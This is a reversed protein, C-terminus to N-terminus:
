RPQYPMYGYQYGQQQPAFRGSPSNVRPVQAGAGAGVGAGLGGARAEALMQALVKGKMDELIPAVIGPMKAHIWDEIDKLIAAKWAAMKADFEPGLALKQPAQPQPQPQPQTTPQAPQSRLSAVEARLASLEGGVAALQSRLADLEAKMSALEGGPAVPAAEPKAAGPAPTGELSAAADGPPLAARRAAALEYRGVAHSLDYRQEDVDAQLREYREDMASEVAEVRQLVEALLARLRIQPRGAGKVDGADAEPEPKTDETKTIAQAPAQAQAEPPPPAPASSAAGASAAPAAASVAAPLSAKVIDQIQELTPANLRILARIHEDSLGQPANKRVVARVQEENLGPASALVIERVRDETPASKAVLARVQAENLGSASARAIERVREESLAEKRVLARIDEESAPAAAPASAKVFAKIEDETLGPGSPERAELRAVRARLEDVHLGTVDGAAVGPVALAQQLLAAFADALADCEARLAAEAAALAGEADALTAADPQFEKIRRLARSAQEVKARAM